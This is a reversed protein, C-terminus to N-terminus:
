YNRGEPAWRPPRPWRSSSWLASFHGMLHDNFVPKATNIYWYYWSSTMVHLSKRSFVALFIWCHETSEERLLDLLAYRQHERRQYGICATLCHTSYCTFQSAVASGHRWQLTMFKDCMKMGNEDKSIHIVIIMFITSTKLNMSVYQRIYAATPQTMTPETAPCIPM